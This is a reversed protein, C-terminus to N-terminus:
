CKGPRENWLSILGFVINDNSQRANEHSFNIDSIPKKIKIRNFTLYLAVLGGRRRGEGRETVYIFDCDIYM